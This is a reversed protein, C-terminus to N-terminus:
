FYKTTDNKKRMKRYDIYGKVMSKLKDVKNDEVLIVILARKITRIFPVNFEVEKPYLYHLLFSNRTIYYKRFASHNYTQMKLGLIKHYSLRGLQHDLINANVQFIKYGTYRLRTFYEWDVYDIFFDDRFGGIKKWVQVNNYSGSTIGLNCEEIGEKIIIKNNQAKDYIVPVLVGINSIHINEEFNDIMKPSVISDQDLLLCWEANLKENAYNMINNLASAIGINTGNGLIIVKEQYNDCIKFFKSNFYLILVDVQSIVATINKNLREKNPEFVVIGAVRM